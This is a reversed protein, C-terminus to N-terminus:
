SAANQSSKLFEIRRDLEEQSIIGLPNYRDKVICIRGNKRFYILSMMHCLNVSIDASENMELVTSFPQVDDDVITVRLDGPENSKEINWLPSIEDGALFQITGAYYVNHNLFIVLDGSKYKSM